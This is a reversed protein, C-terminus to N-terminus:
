SRAPCRPQDAQRRNYKIDGRNAELLPAACEIKVQPSWRVSCRWRPRSPPWASVCARENTLCWAQCVTSTVRMEFGGEQDRVCSGEAGRGTRVQVRAERDRELVVVRHGRSGQM